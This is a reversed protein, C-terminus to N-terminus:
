KIRRKKFMKYYQLDIIKGTYYCDDKTHENLKFGPCYSLLEGESAGCITCTNLGDECYPCHTSKCNCELYSHKLGTTAM